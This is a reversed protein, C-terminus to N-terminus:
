PHEHGLATLKERIREEQDDEEMELALARHYSREARDLEGRVRALDGLHEHITASGPELAVARTLYEEAQDLKGLRFYVWGLSDLYSGRNPELEVAAKILELAESLNVNRDAFMYGLYNLALHHDPKAALLERFAAVADDWRGARELAAARIFQIEHHTGLRKEARGSETVVREYGKIQQLANLGALVDELDGSLLKGLVQEARDTEGATVLFEVRVGNALRGAVPDPGTDLGEIWRLAEPWSGKLRHFEAWLLLGSRRVPANPLRELWPRAQDPSRALLELRAREEAVEEAEEPEPEAESSGTLHNWVEDLLTRAEPFERKAMLVRALGLSAGPHGPTVALVRRFRKEAEDLDGQGTALIARLLLAQEQDPDQDLVQDILEAGRAEDGSRLHLLALELLGATTPQEEELLGELERAAADFEGAAKLSALLGQVAEGRLAPVQAAKRFYEAAESFRGLERLTHAAVLWIRPEENRDALVPQLTDWADQARGLELFVRVLTIRIHPGQPSAELGAQLPAVAEALDAVSEARDLLLLGLMASGEPSLAKVGQLQRIAEEPLRAQALALGLEERIEASGPDRALAQRLMGIGALVEGVELRARAQAVLSLADPRVSAAGGAMTAAAWPGLQTAALLGLVVRITVRVGVEGRCQVGRRLFAGGRSFVPM